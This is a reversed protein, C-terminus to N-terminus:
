ATVKAAIMFGIFLVATLQWFSLKELHRGTYHDILALVVGTGIILWVM